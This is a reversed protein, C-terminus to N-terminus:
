SGTPKLFTSVGDYELTVDLASDLILEFAGFVFSNPFFPFFCFRTRRDVAPPLRYQNSEHSKTGGLELGLQCSAGGQFSSKLISNDAMRHIAHIEHAQNSTHLYTSM